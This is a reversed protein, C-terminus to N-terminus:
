AKLFTVQTQRSNEQKSSLQLEEDELAKNYFFIEAPFHHCLYNNSKALFYNKECFLRIKLNM